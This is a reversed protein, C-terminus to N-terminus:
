AASEWEGTCVTGLPLMWGREVARPDLFSAPTELSIRVASVTKNRRSPARSEVLGLRAMGDM